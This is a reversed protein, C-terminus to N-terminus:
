VGLIARLEAVFEDRLALVAARNEPTPSDNHLNTAITTWNTVENALRTKLTVLNGYTQLRLNDPYETDYAM